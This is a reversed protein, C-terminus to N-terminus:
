IIYWPETIYENMEEVSNFGPRILNGTVHDRFNLMNRHNLHTDSIVWLDGAM